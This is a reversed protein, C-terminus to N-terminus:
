KENRSSAEVKGSRSVSAPAPTKVARGTVPGRPVARTNRSHRGPSESTSPLIPMESGRRGRGFDRRIKQEHRQRSEVPGSVPDAIAGAIVISGQGSQTGAFFDERDPDGVGTLLRRPNRMFGM